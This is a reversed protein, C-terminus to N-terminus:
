YLICLINLRVITYEFYLNNTELSRFFVDNYVYIYVNSQLNLLWFMKSQYKLLFMKFTTLM